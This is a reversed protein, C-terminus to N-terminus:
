HKQKVWTKLEDDTAKKRTGKQILSSDIQVLRGDQTLMTMQQPQESVQKKKFWTIGALGAIAVAMWGVFFRRQPLGKENSDM